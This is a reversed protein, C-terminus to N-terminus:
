NLNSIGIGIQRANRDRHMRARPFPDDGPLTSPDDRATSAVALGEQEILRVSTDSLFRRRRRRRRRHRRRKQPQTVSSILVTWRRNQCALRAAPRVVTRTNTTQLAALHTSGPWYPSSVSDCVSGHDVDTPTFSVARCRRREVNEISHICNAARRASLPGARASPGISRGVSPLVPCRAPRPPQAHSSARDAATWTANDAPDICRRRRRRRRRSAISERRFPWRATLQWVSWHQGTLPGPWRLHRRRGHRGRYSGHVTLPPQPPPPPAEDEFSDHGQGTLQRDTGQLRKQATTAKVIEAIFLSFRM